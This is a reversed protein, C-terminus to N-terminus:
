YCFLSDNDANEKWKRGEVRFDDTASNDEVAKTMTTTTTLIPAPATASTSSAPTIPSIAPNSPRKTTLPIQLNPRAAESQRKSFIRALSKRKSSKPEQPQQQQQQQQQQHQRDHHDDSTTTSLDPILDPVNAEDTSHMKTVPEGETPHTEAASSNSVTNDVEKSTEITTEEAQSAAANDLPPVVAEPSKDTPADAQSTSAATDPEISPEQVQKSTVDQSQATEPAATAKPELTTEKPEESVQAVDAPASAKVPEKETGNVTADQSSLAVPKAPQSPSEAAKESRLCSFLKSLFGM